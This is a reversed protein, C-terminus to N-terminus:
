LLAALIHKIHQAQLNQRKSCFYALNFLIFPIYTQKTLLGLGMVAGTLLSFKLSDFRDMVFMYFTLSVM